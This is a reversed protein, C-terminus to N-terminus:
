EVTTVFFAHELQDGDDTKIEKIETHAVKGGQTPDTYLCKTVDELFKDLEEQVNLATANKKVAGYLYVTMISNFHIKTANSRTEDASAGFLCPYDADSLEGFSKLGRETLGISFNYGNGTTITPFLTDKLYELITNRNSSM